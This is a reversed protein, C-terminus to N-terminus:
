SLVEETFFDLLNDADTWYLTFDNPTERSGSAWKISKYGTFAPTIIRVDDVWTDGYNNAHKKWTVRAYKEFGSNYEFEVDVSLLHGAIMAYFKFEINWKSVKVTVPFVAESTKEGREPEHAPTKFSTFTGRSLNLPLIEVQSHNWWTGIIDIVEDLTKVKFIMGFESLKSHHWVLLNPNPLDSPYDNIMAETAAQEAQLAKIKEQIDNPKM